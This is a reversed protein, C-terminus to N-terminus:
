TGNADDAPATEGPPEKAKDGDPAGGVNWNIHYGALRLDDDILRFVFEEQGTGHEFSTEMNVTVFNGNTSVNRNWGTQKTEVVNGMKDHIESVLGAFAEKSTSGTLDESAGNWIADVNGADLHKHFADIDMKADQVAEGGSCSALLVCLGALLSKVINPM